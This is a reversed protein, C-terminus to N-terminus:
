RAEDADDAKFPNSGGVVLGKLVQIGYSLGYWRVGITSRFRRDNGIAQGLGERHILLGLVLVFLLCFNIQIPYTVSM